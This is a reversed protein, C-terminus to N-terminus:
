TAAATWGHWKPEGGDGGERRARGRHPKRMLPGLPTAVCEAADGGFGGARLVDVAWARGSKGQPVPGAGAGQAGPPPLGAAGPAEDSPPSAPAGDPSPAQSTGPFFCCSASLGAALRPAASSTPLRLSVAVAPMEETGARSTRQPCDPARAPCFGPKSAGKNVTNNVKRHVNAVLKHIGWQLVM